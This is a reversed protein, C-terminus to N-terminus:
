YVERRYIVPGSRYIGFTARGASGPLYYILSGLSVDVTGMTTTVPSPPAIRFTGKGYALTLTAPSAAAKMSPCRGALGKLCNNFTIFDAIPGSTLQVLPNFVYGVPMYYQASADVPASSNPSGYTNAVLLRGSVVTLQAEVSTAATARLS